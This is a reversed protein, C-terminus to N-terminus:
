FPVKGKGQNSSVTLLFGDIFWSADGSVSNALVKSKFKRTELVSFYIYM